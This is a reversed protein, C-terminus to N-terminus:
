RFIDSRYACGCYRDSGRVQCVQIMGTPCGNSQREPPDYHPNYLTSGCGALMIVLLILSAIM